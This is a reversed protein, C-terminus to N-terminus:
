EILDALIRMEHKKGMTTLCFVLFMTQIPQITTHSGQLWQLITVKVAYFM